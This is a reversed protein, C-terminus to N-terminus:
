EEEGFRILIQVSTGGYENTNIRLGSGSGYKLCIRRHINIMGTCEINDDTYDMKSKIQELEDNSIGMGNDSITVVIGSPIKSYQINIMGNEEIDKLGHEFCNEILPQIILRPVMVDHFDDLLEDFQIKIRNAFRMEQIDTYIRAYEVETAISVEDEADRTIFRFYNGLKKSVYVSKEFDQMKIMRHLMFFSNYLFHPNIQSQLHKYEARQTLIKQTYVQNVLIELKQIMSNFSKYLYGFENRTDHTIRFEVDGSELREFSNILVNLPKHILRRISYLLLLVAILSVSTFIWFWKKYQNLSNFVYKAPLFRVIGLGLYDSFEYIVLYKNNNYEISKGWQQIEKTILKITNIIGVETQTDGLDQILINGDKDVFFSGSGKYTNFQELARCLENKSLMVNVEFDLENKQDYTNPPYWAKIFFEGNLQYLYPKQSIMKINENNMFRGEIIDVGTKASINKGVSDIYISADDIYLSSSKITELRQQVKQLSYVKEYESMINIANSLKNLDSDIFIDYQLIKIREVEKELSELYFEVQSKMSKMMEERITDVGWSYIKTGILYLPAVVLLSIIIFRTLISKSWLRMFLGGITIYSKSKAGSDTFM